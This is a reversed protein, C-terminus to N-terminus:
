KVEKIRKACDKLHKSQEIVKIVKGCDMCMCTGCEEDLKTLAQSITKKQERLHRVAGVCLFCNSDSGDHGTDKLRALVNDAMVDIDELLERVTM